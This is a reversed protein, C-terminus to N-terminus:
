ATAASHASTEAQPRDTDAKGSETAAQLGAAADSKKSAEQEQSATAAATSEEAAAQLIPIEQDQLQPVATKPVTLTLVGDQLKAQISQSDVHDPLQFSRTFSGSQREVRKFGDQSIEETESQRKGSITLVKNKTLHM